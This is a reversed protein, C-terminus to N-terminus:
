WFNTLQTQKHIIMSASKLQPDLFLMHSIEPYPLLSKGSVSINFIRDRGGYLYNDLYAVGVIEKVVYNTDTKAFPKLYGDLIYGKGVEIRLIAHSVFKPNWGNYDLIEPTIAVFLGNDYFLISNGKVMSNPLKAIQNWVNSVWKVCHGKSGGSNAGIIDIDKDGAKTNCLCLSSNHTNQAIEKIQRILLPIQGSSGVIEHLDDWSNVITYDIGTNHVVVWDGNGDGVFFTHNGDVTLSWTRIEEEIQLKEQLTFAVGDATVITDGIELDDVGVWGKGDAYFPHGECATLELTEGNDSRLNLRWAKSKHCNKCASHSIM